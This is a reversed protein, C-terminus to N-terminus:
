LNQVFPLFSAPLFSNMQTKNSNKEAHEATLLSFFRLSKFSHIEPLTLAKNRFTIHFVHVSPTEEYGSSSGQSQEHSHQSM